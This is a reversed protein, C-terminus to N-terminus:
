ENKLIKLSNDNLFWLFVDFIEENISSLVESIRNSEISAINYRDIDCIIHGVKSNQIQLGQQPIAHGIRINLGDNDKLYNITNINQQILEEMPFCDFSFGIKENLLNKSIQTLTTNENIGVGIINIKRIALRNVVSINLELFLKIIKNIEFDLIESFDKYSNGNINIEVINETFNVSRNGDLSKLVFGKGKSTNVIPTENKNIQIQFNNSVNDNLRPYREQFDSLIKNKNKFLADTQEFKIQVIVTRLFNQKFSDRISYDVKPFGFM